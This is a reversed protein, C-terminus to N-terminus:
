PSPHRRCRSTVYRSLQACTALYLLLPECNVVGVNM